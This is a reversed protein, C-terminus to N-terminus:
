QACGLVDAKRSIFPHNEPAFAGSNPSISMHKGTQSTAHPFSRYSSELRRVPASLIGARGPLSCPKENGFNLRPPAKGANEGAVLPLIPTM